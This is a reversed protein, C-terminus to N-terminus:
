NRENKLTSYKPQYKCIPNELRASTIIGRSMKKSQTSILAILELATALEEVSGLAFATLIRRRLDVNM